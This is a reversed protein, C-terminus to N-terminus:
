DRPSPSTYLLCYSLLTAWAGLDGPEATLRLPIFGLAILAERRLADDVLSLGIHVIVIVAILVLAGPPLNIAPANPGQPADRQPIM